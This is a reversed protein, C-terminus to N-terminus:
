CGVFLIYADASAAGPLTFPGAPLPLRYVNFTADGVLSQGTNSWGALWAPLANASNWAVCVSQNVTSTFSVYAQDAIAADNRALRIVRANLYAPPVSALRAPSDIFELNGPNALSMLDVVAPTGTSIKLHTISSGAALDMTGKILNLSDYANQGSYEVWLSLGDPSVWKQMMAWGVAVSNALCNTGCNTNDFQEEYDVTTWPGWPSPGDFLSVQRECPSGGCDSGHDNYAIYRGIAADFSVSLSESENPDAWVPAAQVSSAAWIPNGASDTGAYYTWSSANEITNSPFSPVRALYQQDPNNTKSGYIYIYPVLSSSPMLAGSQGAGYQLVAVPGFGGADPWVGGVNDTWTVGNDLSRALWAQSTCLDYTSHFMYIVANPLAVVGRPKGGV